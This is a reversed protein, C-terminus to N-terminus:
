MNKNYADNIFNKADEESFKSETKIIKSIKLKNIHRELNEESPM